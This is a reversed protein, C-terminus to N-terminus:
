GRRITTYMYAYEVCVYIYICTCKKQQLIVTFLNSAYIIMYIYIINYKCTYVRVTYACIIVNINVIELTKFVNLMLQM